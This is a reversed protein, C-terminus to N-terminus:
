RDRDRAGGFVSLQKRTEEREQARQRQLEMRVQQKVTVRQGLTGSSQLLEMQKAYAAKLDAYGGQFVVDHDTFLM